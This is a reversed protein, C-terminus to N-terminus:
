HPPYGMRGRFAGLAAGRGFAAAPQYLGMFGPPMGVPAMAAAPMTPAMVPTGVLAQAPMGRGAMAALGAAGPMQALGASALKVQDAAASSAVDQATDSPYAGMLGAGIGTAKPNAQQAVMQQVALAATSTYAMYSDMGEYASLSTPPAALVQAAKTPSDSGYGKTDTGYADKTAGYGAYASEDYHGYGHDAYADMRTASQQGYAPVSAKPEEAEVAGAGWRSKRKKQSDDEPPPPPPPQYLGGASSSVTPTTSTTSATLQWGQPGWAWTQQPPPPEAKSEASKPVAASTKATSWSEVSAAQQTGSSQLDQQRWYDAWEAQQPDAKSAATTDKATTDEYGGYYGYQSWASHPDPEPAKPTEKEAPPPPPPPKSTWSQGRSYPDSHGTSSGWAGPQQSALSSKAGTQDGLAGAGYSKDAQSGWMGSSEWKQQDPRTSERSSPEQASQDYSDKPPPQDSWRGRWYDPAHPDADKTQGYGENAGPRGAERGYGQSGYGQSGYGQSGYGQSGYGQSGYGQSGYGQNSPGKNAADRSPYAPEKSQSVDDDGMWSTSPPENPDPENGQYSDSQPKDEGWRSSRGSLQPPPMSYDDQRGGGWQSSPAERSPDKRGYPDEEGPKSWQNGRSRWDEESKGPGGGWRSDSYQDGQRQDSPKDRSEPAGPRGYADRGGRDMGFRDMEGPRGYQDGAGDRGPQSRDRVNDQGPPANPRGYRDSEPRDQGYSDRGHGYMDRGRAEGYQSDGPRGDDPRRNGPRGDGPRSDGPRSDGPRSDGPRSDGPRSDGPRSDGPRSDGPRGDGPRRDGPRGEATHGYRDRDAEYGGYGRDRGDQGGYSDPRGQGYRSDDRDRAGGGYPRDGM